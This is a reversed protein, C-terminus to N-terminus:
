EPLESLNLRGNKLYLLMESHDAFVEHDSSQQIRQVFEQMVFTKENITSGKITEINVKIASM